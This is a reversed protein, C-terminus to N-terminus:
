LCKKKNDHRNCKTNQEKVRLDRQICKDMGLLREQERKQMSYQLWTHM